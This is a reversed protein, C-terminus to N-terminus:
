EEVRRERLRTEGQCCECPKLIFMPIACIDCWYDVEYLGDPKVALVRIVQLLPVARYRRVLLEVDIDRLRQDVAFARGRVDPVLPLLEGAPTKLAVITEAASPETTVGLLEKIAGDLWVVRGRLKETTYPRSPAAAADSTAVESKPANSGVSEPAANNPGAALMAVVILLVVLAAVGQGAHERAAIASGM